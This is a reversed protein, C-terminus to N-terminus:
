CWHIMLCHPLNQKIKIMYIGQICKFRYKKEKKKRLSFHLDKLLMEAVDM